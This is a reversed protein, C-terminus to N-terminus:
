HVIRGQSDAIAVSCVFRARRDNEGPAATQMQRLITDIKEPFTMNEGGYRASMVGPHGGISAIELGSDDALTLIRAQAAYGIAKLIANDRFTTGTEAVESYTPLDDLSIIEIPLEVLLGRLEALKGRNTTAVLLRTNIDNM